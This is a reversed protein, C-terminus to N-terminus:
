LSRKGTLSEIEIKIIVMGDLLNQPYEHQLDSYKRMLIDLASKKGADDTIISARGYGIVSQYKTSCAHASDTDVLKVDIDAQFCVYNNKRIIEIKRGEPASHIYLCKGDYGFNLPVVYPVNGDALALRCIPARHLIADIESRETIEREKRRM